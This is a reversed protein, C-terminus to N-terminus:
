SFANAANHQATIRFMLMVLVSAQLIVVAGAILNSEKRFARRRTYGALKSATGPNLL